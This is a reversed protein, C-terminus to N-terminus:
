LSKFCKILETTYPRMHVLLSDEIYALDKSHLVAASRATHIKEGSQFSVYVCRRKLKPTSGRIKALICISKLKGFEVTLRKTVRQKLLSKLEEIYLLSIILRAGSELYPAAIEFQLKPPLFSFAFSM